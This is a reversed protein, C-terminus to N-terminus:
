SSDKFFHYSDYNNRNMQDNQLAILDERFAMQDRDFSYESIKETESPIPIRQYYTKTSGMPDKLISPRNYAQIEFVPSTFPLNVKLDTSYIYSGGRIDKISKYYGTKVDSNSDGYIDQLPQTNKLYLPPKDLFMYQNHPSNYTRPDMSTFGTIGENSTKKEFDDAEILNFGKRNLEEETKTGEPFDQLALYTKGLQPKEEECYNNM